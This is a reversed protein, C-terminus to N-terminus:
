GKPITFSFKRGKSIESEGWIKGAYKKIFEKCLVLGL